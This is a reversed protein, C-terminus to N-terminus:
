GQLEVMTGQGCSGCDITLPEKLPRHKELHIRAGCRPCPGDLSLLTVREHAFRWAFYGGGIFAAAGWPIHPPIILLVPMMGWGIFLSLAVRTMRWSTSRRVLRVAAVTPPFGFAELRANTDIVTAAEDVRRREPGARVAPLDTGRHTHKHRHTGTAGGYFGRGLSAM